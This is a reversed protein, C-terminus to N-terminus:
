DLDLYQLVMLIPLVRMQPPQLNKRPICLAPLLRPPRRRRQLNIPTPRHHLTSPTPSPPQSRPHPHPHPPQPPALPIDFTANASSVHSHAYPGLPSLHRRTSVIRTSDNLWPDQVTLTPNRSGPPQVAATLRCSRSAGVNTDILTGHGPFFTLPFISSIRSSYSYLLVSAYM